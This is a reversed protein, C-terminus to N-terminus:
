YRNPGEKPTAHILSPEGALLGALETPDDLRHCPLGFLNAAAPIDFNPPTSMLAEFEDPPMSQKQPLRDFIAGGNNDIVLIHPRNELGRWVALSGIDHLFGVDGTVIVTPRNTALAAGIGSGILGDIGNAGRNALFTLDRSLSPTFSELDRIPMSSNVYILGGDPVAEALTRYLPGTPARDPGPLDAAAERWATLYSGEPVAGLRGSLTDAFWAPDARVIQSATGTPENFGHDPDIVIQETRDLGSLWLRLGKSTPMEGFRLVLDPTLEPRANFGSVGYRDSAGIRAYGPVTRSRDHPGCLLQSTPEALVPCDLTEALRAVPERLNPDTQRGALILVRGSGALREAVGDVTAEDPLRPRAGSITVLPRDGRGELALSSTATVADPGPIPALPERLPFNLHAPGPRPDGAAVAFARCATARFHLLGADDAAHSGVESFWRVASGFLKIQDITQGSGNDRLEPPRDATIVILPVASLDAEAVAPHYNAAATGSTCLLAVPTGSAQAAGLAIFGASREDVVVTVEIGPERWLALALPTSRSGPSILALRVGCRALEEAFASALATNANTRDM